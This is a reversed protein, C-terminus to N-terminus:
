RPFGGLCSVTHDIPEGVEEAARWGDAGGNASNDTWAHVLAAIAEAARHTNPKKARPSFMTRFGSTIDQFVNFLFSILFCQNLRKM